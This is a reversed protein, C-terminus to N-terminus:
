GTRPLTNETTGTSFKKKLRRIRALDNQFEQDGSLTRVDELLACLLPFKPQKRRLRFPKKAEIFLIKGRLVPNSGAIQLVLRKAEDDGDEFWSIAQKLFLIVDKAPEFMKEEDGDQQRQELYFREGDLRERRKTFENDDILGRIRMDILTDAKRRNNEIAEALSKQAMAFTNKRDKTRADLEELAWDHFGQSLEITGLFDRIQEVLDQAGISRETCKPRKRRTCHYYDYESGFRNTKHEATVSQGCAGCKIMGTFAFSRRKPREKNPRGLITQAREFEDLTIMPPHKGQYLRGEWPILGAYFINHFITYVHSLSLPKPVGGKRVKTTLGWDYRAIRWIESPRKGGSLLMDWMRRVLDFRQPDVIITRDESNNLYGVPPRNPKWGKEVKTRNGRRVNESLSDVYYKSYGFIISLMFKGQSTNEFSFTSFHMDRLKGQDLLFIIRGGDISNRALRDPHWAIIGEADGHEIRQLMADFIPRGPSKASQAEEFVEVVTIDSRSSFQKRIESIQSEISLM